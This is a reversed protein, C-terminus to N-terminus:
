SPRVAASPEELGAAIRFALTLRNADEAHHYTNLGKLRAEVYGPALRRAAELASKALEIEGLSVAALVLSM